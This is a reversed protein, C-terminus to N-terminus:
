CTNLTYLYSQVFGQDMMDFLEILTQHSELRSYDVESTVGLNSMAAILGAGRPLQYGMAIGIVIGLVVSLCYKIM